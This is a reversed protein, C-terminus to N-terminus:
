FVFEPMTLNSAFELSMALISMYALFTILTKISTVLWTAGYVRRFSIVLYGLLYVFLALHLVLLPWHQDAARELPLLLALVVYAASHLHLAHILHEFYFRQWFVAKLLLAFVPLLIFMLGPLGEALVRVEGASDADVDFLIGQRVTWAMVFFFLVSVVLYLRVPPTYKKRHGALFNKTLVGPQSFMTWITRAARGDIDFAERLVEGLLDFFPRQLEVDKQGCQPCFKADLPTDCNKCRNM